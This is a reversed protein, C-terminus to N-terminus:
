DIGLFAILILISQACRNTQIEYSKLHLVNLEIAIYSTSRLIVVAQTCAAFRRTRITEVMAKKKLEIAEAVCRAIPHLPFKTKGMEWCCM